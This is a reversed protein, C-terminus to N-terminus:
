TYFRTLNKHGIKYFANNCMCLIYVMYKYYLLSWFTNQVTYEFNTYKYKVHLEALIDSVDLCM